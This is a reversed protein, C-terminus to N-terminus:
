AVMDLPDSGNTLRKWMRQLLERRQQEQKQQSQESPNQNKQQDDSTTQHDRPAQQVHLKDVSVGQTELAHKLQTLSHSLVKTADDNSTQFTANIVGNQMHVSVQLAGLEPPDLRIQMTGGNPLLQGQIGSVIKAHNSDAFQVEPPTFAQATVSAADAKANQAASTTGVTKSQVTSSSTLDNALATLHDISSVASTGSSSPAPTDNSQQPMAVSAAAAAAAADDAAQQQQASLQDTQATNSAKVAPAAGLAPQNADDDAGLGPTKTKVPKSAAQGSDPDDAQNVADDTEQVEEADEIQDATQSKKVTGVTKAVNVGTKKQAPTKLAAANAASPKDTGEDKQATAADRATITKIPAALAQLLPDPGSAKDVAQAAPQQGDKKKGGQQKNDSTSDDGAADAAAVANAQDTDQEDPDDEKVVRDAKKNAQKGKNTKSTKKTESKSNSQSTKQSSQQQDSPQPQPQQQSQATKMASEFSESPEPPLAKMVPMDALSFLGGSTQNVSNPM